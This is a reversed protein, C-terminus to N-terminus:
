DFGGKGGDVDLIVLVEDLEFHTLHQPVFQGFDDVVETRGILVEPQLAVQSLVVQNSLHLGDQLSGEFKLDNLGGVIIQGFFEFLSRVFYLVEISLYEFLEELVLLSTEEFGLYEIGIQLSRQAM